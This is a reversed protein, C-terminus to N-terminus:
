VIKRVDKMFVGRIKSFMFIKGRSEVSYVPHPFSSLVGYGRSSRPDGRLMGCLLLLRCRGEFSSLGEYADNNSKNGVSTRVSISIQTDTRSSKSLNLCTMERKFVM